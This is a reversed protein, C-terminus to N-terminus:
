YIYLIITKQTRFSIFLWFLYTFALEGFFWLCFQFLPNQGGQVSYISYQALPKTCMQIHESPSVRVYSLLLRGNQIWNQQGIYNDESFSLFHSHLACLFICPPPNHACFIYIHIYIYIYIYIYAYISLRDCYVYTYTYIFINM